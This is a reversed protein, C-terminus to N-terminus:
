RYHPKDSPFPIGGVDLLFKNEALDKAFQKDGEVWDLDAMKVRPVWKLENQFETDKKVEGTLGICEIFYVIVKGVKGAYDINSTALIRVAKVRKHIEEWVERECAALLDEGSEERKGGVFEWKLGFKLKEARQAVLFSDIKPDYIVAGVVEIPNEAMIQGWQVM